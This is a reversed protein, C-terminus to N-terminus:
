FDVKKLLTKDFFDFMFMENKRFDVLRHTKATGVIDIATLTDKLPNILEIVLCDSDPRAGRGVFQNLQVNSHWEKAGIVTNCGKVDIGENIRNCNVIIEYEGKSFGDLIDNLEDPDQDLIAISKEYGNDALWSQFERVEAKTSFTIITNGIEEYLCTFVKQMMPVKNRGGTDIVSIIDTEALYGQEVAEQRTIESVVAEFKLICNDPRNPTATLGILPASNISELYLQFSNMSEHHAEDLCTIDWGEDILYQPFTKLCTSITIIEINNVNDYTRVAQQLLRQKNAIFLLRLPRDSKIGLTERMKESSFLSRSIITKGAGTPKVILIRQYGNNLYHITKAVTDIQFQRKEEGHKLNRMFDNEVSQQIDFFEPTDFTIKKKNEIIFQELM